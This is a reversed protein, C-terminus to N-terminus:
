LKKQKDGALVTNRDNGFAKYNENLRADIINQDIDYTVKFEKYQHDLDRDFIILRDGEFKFIFQNKRKLDYNRQRESQDTFGGFIQNDSTLYIFM